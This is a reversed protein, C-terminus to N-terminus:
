NTEIWAMARELVPDKGDLLARRTLKIEEDPVVGTGELAKGGKSIYNAVAYQFGDGNPLREIMSPLAAGATRSGFIRARGADKMGEAFIEATSASCGDVLVALPGTFVEPRGFVAFRIQGSRLIMTGLEAGKRDIFWGALGTALGGIGGPNGRLDIVFGRCAACDKLIKSVSQMLTEPEFFMNFRLYGIDPTLKRTEVWFPLPPLNGLQATQGRPPVRELKRTVPHNAGDLFDVRVPNAVDGRLRGAVSHVLTLELLTSDASKKEILRLGSALKQGDIRVIEWGPLIGAGAAPSNPTLATVVAQGDIVRLEIGPDGEGQAGRASKGAPWNMEGYVEAPVIGFHTQHLRDLMRTIAARAEATSSANEVAPLLEDHVAKWDLGGLTPDWHHDRVTTWVKEFSEVNLRRQEPTLGPGAAASTWTFAALLVATFVRMSFGCPAPLRSGEGRFMERATM